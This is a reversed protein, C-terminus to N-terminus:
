ITENKKFKILSIFVMICWVAMEYGIYKSTGFWIQGDNGNFYFLFCQSVCVLFFYSLFTFISTSPIFKRKEVELKVDNRILFTFIIQIILIVIGFLIGAFPILREFEVLILNIPILVLGRIMINSFLIYYLLISIFGYLIHVIYLKNSGEM